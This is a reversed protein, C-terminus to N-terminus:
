KRCYEYIAKDTLKRILLPKNLVECCFLRTRGDVIFIENDLEFIFAPHYNDKVVSEFIINFDLHRDRPLIVDREKLLGILTTKDEAKLIKKYLEKNFNDNYLNVLQNFYQQSLFSPQTDELLKYLDEKKFGTIFEKVKPHWELYLCDIDIDSLTM